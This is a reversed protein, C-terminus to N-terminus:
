RWGMGAALLTIKGRDQGDEKTMSCHGEFVVGEEMMVMPASINGRLRGPAQLELRETAIVDGVVEGSIVVVTSKVTAEIHAHPGVFLVGQGNIEGKFRGDLRAQGSFGLVGELNSDAGLFVSVDTEKRGKALVHERTWFTSVPGLIRGKLRFVM